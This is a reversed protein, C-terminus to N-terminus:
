LRKIIKAPNGVAVSRDPINKTVVAGAGVVCHNGISINPLIVVRGGIWSDNGIHIEGQTSKQKTLAVSTNKFEHRNTYFSISPGLLVNNGIVIKGMGKMDTGRPVLTNNGIFIHEPHEIYVSHYIYSNTGLRGLMPRLFSTYLKSRIDTPISGLWGRGVHKELYLLVAFLTTRMTKM